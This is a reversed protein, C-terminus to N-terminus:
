LFHNQTSFDFVSNVQKYFLKQASNSSIDIKNCAISM